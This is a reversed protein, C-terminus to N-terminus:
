TEAIRRNPSTDFRRYLTEAAVNEAVHRFSPLAIRRCFTEAAVNQRRKTQVNRDSRPFNNPAVRSEASRPGVMAASFRSFLRFDGFLSFVPSFRRIASDGFRRFALFCAFIATEAFLDPRRSFTRFTRYQPTGRPVGILQEVHFASLNNLKLLKHLITRFTRM